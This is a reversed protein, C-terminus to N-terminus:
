LTHSTQITYIPEHTNEIRNLTNYEQCLACQNTCPICHILFNNRSSYLINYKHGIKTRYYGLLLGTFSCLIFANLVNIFIIYNIFHNIKEPLNSEYNCLEILPQKLCDCIDTNNTNNTIICKDNRLITHNFDIYENHCITNKNCNEIENEYKLLDGLWMDWEITFTIISFIASIMFQLTFLKCCGTFCKGFGALEYIRGFLCSPCFCGMTFSCIDDFCGFLSNFINLENLKEYKNM